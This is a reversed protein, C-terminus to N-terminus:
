LNKTLAEVDETSQWQLKFQELLRTYNKLSKRWPRTSTLAGLQLDVHHINTFEALAADVQRLANQEALTQMNDYIIDLAADVEGSDCVEVARQIWEAKM